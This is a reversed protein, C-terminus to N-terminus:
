WYYKQAQKEEEWEWSLEDRAIFHTSKYMIQASHILVEQAHVPPIEM